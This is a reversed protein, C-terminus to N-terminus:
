AGPPGGGGGRVKVFWPTDVGGGAAERAHERDWVRQNSLTLQKLKARLERCERSLGGTREDFM